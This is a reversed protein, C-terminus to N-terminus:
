QMVWQCGPTLSWICHLDTPPVKKVEDQGLFTLRIVKHNIRLCPHSSNSNYEELRSSYPERRGTSRAWFIIHESQTSWPDGDTGPRTIGLAADLEAFSMVHRGGPLTFSGRGVDKNVELTAIFKITWSAYTPAAKGYLNILGGKELLQLICEYLGLEQMIEPDFFM